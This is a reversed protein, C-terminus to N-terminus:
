HCAYSFFFFIETVELDRSEKEDSWKARLQAQLWEPASATKKVDFLEFITPDFPPFHVVKSM